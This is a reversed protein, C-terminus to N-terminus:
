KEKRKILLHKFAKYLESDKLYAEEYEGTYKGNNYHAFRVCTEKDKTGEKIPYLSILKTTKM